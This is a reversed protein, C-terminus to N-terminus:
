SRFPYLGAGNWTLLLDATAKVACRAILADYVAGGVISTSIADIAAIYEDQILSVITLRDCIQKVIAMGDPGTIRPRVPLGTLVSYVEGLTRM